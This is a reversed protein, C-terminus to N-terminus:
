QFIRPPLYCITLWSESQVIKPIWKHITDSMWELETTYVKWYIELIRQCWETLTPLFELIWYLVYLVFFHSPLSPFFICAYLSIIWWYFKYYFLLDPGLSMYAKCCTERLSILHPMSCLIISWILHVIFIFSYSSKHQCWPKM